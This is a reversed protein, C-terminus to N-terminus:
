IYMNINEEELFEYRSMEDQRKLWGDHIRLHENEKSMFISEDFPRLIAINEWSTARSLIVYLNELGLRGTPPKRIDVIFKKRFGQGQVKENSSKQMEIVKYDSMAFSSILPIQTRDFHKETGWEKPAKIQEKIPMLPFWNTETYKRYSKKGDVVEVFVCIPPRSLKVIQKQMQSWGRDDDPHPVVQRVIVQTGNAVGLEVAVNATVMAPGDTCLVNWTALYETKADPTWVMQMRNCELGQDLSPSIIIQKKNEIAHRLAAQNNWAQRVANRPTVLTASRWDPDTLNPGEPHGFTRRWLLEMDSATANGNRIRDLVSHVSEDRARYHETLLVTRETIGQWLLFGQRRNELLKQQTKSTSATIDSITTEHYLATDRVPPLQHFDGTFLVYLGGFPLMNGKVKQLAKSIKVLKSCGLMSVEDLILFMCNMWSNEVGMEVSEDDQCEDDGAKARKRRGLGCASDITSGGILNAACGTTATVLLKERCGAREFLTVIAEIVRSKGTGGPGGLYMGRNDTDGNSDDNMDDGRGHFLVLDLKDIYLSFARNQAENLTYEQCIGDIMAKLWQGDREYGHSGCGDHRQTSLPPTPKQQQQQHRQREQKVDVAIEEKWKKVKEESVFSPMPYTQSPDSAAIENGRIIDTQDLFCTQCAKSSPLILNNRGASLAGAIYQQQSSDNAYLNNFTLYKEVSITDDEEQMEESLWMESWKRKRGRKPADSIREAQERARAEAEEEADRRSKSLTDINKIYQLTQKKGNTVKFNTIM